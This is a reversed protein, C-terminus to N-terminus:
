IFDVNSLQNGDEDRSPGVDVLVPSDPEEDPDDQYPTDRFVSTPEDRYPSRDEDRFQEPEDDPDLQFASMPDSGSRVAFTRSPPPNMDNPSSSFTSRKPAINNSEDNPDFGSHRRRLRFPMCTSSPDRPRKSIFIYSFAITAAILFFIALGLMTNSNKPVRNTAELKPAGVRMECHPGTWEPPCSCGPNPDSPSVYDNCTGQNTCFYLPRGPVNNGYTCIDTAPHQCSDGAFLSTDTVGLKEDAQSCDCGHQQNNKVCKSGHLCLHEDAGCVEAKHECELGFWGETCVCHEFYREDYTQNLHAVHDVAGDLHSLDKAGDACVGGNKCDLKCRYFETDDEREDPDNPIVNDENDENEYLPEDCRYGTYGSPCSCGVDDDGEPCKGNNVCFDATNLSDLTGKTCLSTMEYQCNKGAFLNSGTAATDCNCRYDSQGNGLVFTECTAGNYCYDDGCEVYEDVVKPDDAKDVLEDADTVYECRFGFFADPCDCGSMINERCSGNNTCYQAASLDEGQAPESCFTTQKFECQAGAFTDTDTFASSCDCHNMDKKQGSADTITTTVCQGGNLCALDGCPEANDAGTDEDQADRFECALGTWGPQCNCGRDPNEDDCIGNNACFVVSALSDGQNSRSCFSTSKHECSIGGYRHTDDFASSCDCHYETETNGGAMNIQTQVCQGGNYCYGDGCEEGQDAHQDDKVVVDCMNGTWGSPCNCGDTGNCKGGNVCFMGAPNEQVCIDSSQYNCEPGAFFNSGDTAGVCDCEYVTSAEGTSVDITEITECKGGNYCTLSDGCAEENTNPTDDLIDSAEEVFECRFGTFGAPCGCGQRIDDPNCEGNNVCYYTSELGMGELPKTCFKSAEFECMKGAWATTETVATSCDCHKSETSTGDESFFLSTVCTGGNHCVLDDGCTEYGDPQNEIVPDQTMDEFECSFGKFGGPCKCGLNPDDQCTGHNTCFQRGQMSDGDHTCTQTSPYQCSEGAYHFNDDFATSCDCHFESETNAGRIVRTEVCSGGNLCVKEGCTPDNPYEDELAYIHIECHDGEWGDPCKCAKDNELTPCEGQHTCFMKESDCTSTSKYQCSSGAWYHVGDFTHSCDCTQQTEVSGDSLKLTTTVCESGNFCYVDGCKEFHDSASNAGADFYSEDRYECKFGKYGPPCDCGKTPDSSCTGGNTCFLNDNDDSCFKESPYQCYKGAFLKDQDAATTCDCHYEQTTVGNSNTFQTEVCTGGHFCTDGGCNESSAECLPGGFDDTCLCQMHSDIDQQSWVHRMTKAESPDRIGIVCQGDNKCDLTCDPVTGTKFECHSGEWGDDCICPNPDYTPFDPNCDGGNVCFNKGEADCLKESPTECYKGVYRTGDSGVANICDCFLQENGFKDKMGPVCEGGHYCKHGSSNDCSEYKHDCLIGTWGYPCACHMGNQHVPADEGLSIKHAALDASGMQCPADTPCELTCEQSLVAAAPLIALGMLTSLLRVM